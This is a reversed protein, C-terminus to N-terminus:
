VDRLQSTDPRDQERMPVVDTVRLLVGVDEAGLHYDMLGVVISRGRRRPNERAQVGNLQPASDDGDRRGTVGFTM